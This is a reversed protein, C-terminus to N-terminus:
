KKEKRDPGKGKFPPPGKFPGGLPRSSDKPPGGALSAASGPGPVRALGTEREKNQRELFFLMEEVIVFGDGNRDLRQFEELSRGSHRWEYLGIQADADSDLRTFWDPLGPPLRGARYVVPRREEEEAPRAEPGPMAGRAPGEPDAAVQQSLAQLRAQHYARYEDVDIVGDRNADWRGRESRLPESMEDHNLAGDGNLDLKEFLKQSQELQVYPSVTGQPLQPAKRIAALIREEL